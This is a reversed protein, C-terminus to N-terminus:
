SLFPRHTDIQKYETCPSNSNYLSNITVSDYPKLIIKKLACMCGTTFISLCYVYNHTLIDGKVKLKVNIYYNNSMVYQKLKTVLSLFLIAVWVFYSFMTKM